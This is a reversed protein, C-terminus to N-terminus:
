TQDTEDEDTHGQRRLLEQNLFQRAKELDLIGALKEQNEDKMVPIQDATMQRMKEMASSLSDSTKVTIGPSQVIDAAVLWQWTDQSTLVERMSEFSIVGSMNGEIDLVPYIRQGNGTLRDIVRGLSENEKVTVPSRNMVSQVSLEAALDEERVDRGLEDAFALSLKVMPPGVIQVILTTATVVFIIADGLSLGQSLQFHGLHQGAM